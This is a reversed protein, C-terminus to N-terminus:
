CCCSSSIRAGFKGDRYLSHPLGASPDPLLDIPLESTCAKAQKGLGLWLFLELKACVEGPATGLAQTPLLSAPTGQVLDRQWPSITGLNGLTPPRSGSRCVEEYGVGYDWGMPRIIGGGLGCGLHM